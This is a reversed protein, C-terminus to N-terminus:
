PRVKKCNDAVFEFHRIVDALDKAPGNGHDYAQNAAFLQGGAPNGWIERNAHAWVSLESYMAFGLDKALANAGDRFDLSQGGKRFAEHQWHGLSYWGGVCHVTGCKHGHQNVDVEMMDLGMEEQLAMPLVSYLKEIVTAWQKQTPTHM